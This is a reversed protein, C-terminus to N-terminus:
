PVVSVRQRWEVLGGACFDSRLRVLTASTVLLVCDDRERERERERELRDRSIRGSMKQVIIM